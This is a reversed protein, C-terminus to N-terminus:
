LDNGNDLFARRKISNVMSLHKFSHNIVRKSSKNHNEKFLFCLM